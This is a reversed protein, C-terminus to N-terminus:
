CTRYSNISCLNFSSSIQVNETEVRDNVQARIAANERFNALSESAMLSSKVSGYGRASDFSRLLLGGEEDVTSFDSDYYFRSRRLENKTGQDVNCPAYVSIM